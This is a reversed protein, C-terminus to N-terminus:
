FRAGMAMGSYGPTVVPSIQFNKFGRGEQKPGTPELFHWVVGGVLLVSGAVVLITGATMEGAATGADSQRQRNTASQSCGNLTNSTACPLQKGTAPDVIASDPGINIPNALPPGNAPTDYYNTCQGRGCGPPTKAVVLLGIGTGLAAVGIGVSVWPLATHEQERPPPPATTPQPTPATTPQPTPATTPASAAAAKARQKMSEINAKHKDIDPANPARQVYTELAFIAEPLNPQREYARSIIILYDHNQCDREYADKFFTVAEELKGKDYKEKGLVYANHGKEKEDAEVAPARAPCQAYTSKAVPATSSTQAFAPVAVVTAFVGGLLLPRLSRMRRNVM